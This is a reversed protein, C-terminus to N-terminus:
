TTWEWCEELGGIPGVDQFVVVFGPTWELVEYAPFFFRYGHRAAELTPLVYALDNDPGGVTTRRGPGGGGGKDFSFDGERGPVKFDHVLVVAKVYHRGIAELEGLLPWDDYWHADLYFLPLEGADEAVLPIFQRSDMEYLCVSPPMLAKAAAIQEPNIECTLVPVSPRLRAVADSTNGAGTGTEVFATAGADLISLALDQLKGDGNFGAM